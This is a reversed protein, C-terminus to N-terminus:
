LTISEIDDFTGIITMDPIYWRQTIWTTSETPNAFAYNTIGADMEADDSSIFLYLSIADTSNVKHRIEVFNEIELTTINTGFGDADAGTDGTALLTAVDGDTTFTEDGETFFTGLWGDVDEFTANWGDGHTKNDPYYMVDPDITESFDWESYVADANTDSDPDLGTDSTLTENFGYISDASEDGGAALTMTPFELDPILPDAEALGDEQFSTNAELPFIVVFASATIIVLILFVILYGKKAQKRWVNIDHRLTM